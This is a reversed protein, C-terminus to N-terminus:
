ITESKVKQHQNFCGSKEIEKNVLILKNVFWKGTGFIPKVNNRSVLSTLNLFLLSYSFHLTESNSM